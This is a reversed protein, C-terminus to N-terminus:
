GRGIIAGEVVLERDDGGCSIGPRGGAAGIPGKGSCKALKVPAGQLPESVLVTMDDACDSSFPPPPPPPHPHPHPPPPIEHHTPQPTSPSSTGSPADAAAPPQDSTLHRDGDRQQEVLHQDSAHHGAHTSHQVMDASANCHTLYRWGGVGSSCLLPRTEEGVDFLRRMNIVLRSITSSGWHSDGASLFVASRALVFMETVLAELGLQWGPYLPLDSLFVVPAGVLQRLRAKDAPTGCNTGVFVASLKFEDLLRNIECSMHEPEGLEWMRYGMTGMEPHARDGRRWHVGVYNQFAQLPTQAILAEVAHMVGVSPTLRNILNLWDGTLEPDVSWLEQGTASNEEEATPLSISTPLKGGVIANVHRNHLALAVVTDRERDLAAEYLLGRLHRKTEPLCTINKVWHMRGFFEMQRPLEGSDKDLTVCSHLSCKEQDACAQGGIVKADGVVLVDITAGTAELFTDTSAFARLNVGDDMVDQWAWMDFLRAGAVPLTGLIAHFRVDKLDGAKKKQEYVADDRAQHIFTPEVLGRDLVRSALWATELYNLLQQGFLCCTVPFNRVSSVTMVWPHERFEAATVGAAIIGDTAHGEDHDRAGASAAAGLPAPSQSSAADQLSDDEDSVPLVCARDDKLGALFARDKDLGPFEDYLTLSAQLVGAASSPVPLRAAARAGHQGVALALSEKAIASSGWALVVELRYVARPVLGDVLVRLEAGDCERGFTILGREPHQQVALGPGALCGLSCAALIAAALLASAAAAAGRKPLREMCQPEPHGQPRNKRAQRTADIVLASGSPLATHCQLQAGHAGM